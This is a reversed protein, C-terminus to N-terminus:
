QESSYVHVGHVCICACAWACLLVRDVVYYRVPASRTHQKPTLGSCSLFTVKRVTLLRTAWVRRELDAHDQLLEQFSRERLWPGRAVASAQRGALHCCVLSLSFTKAGYNSEYRCKRVLRRAKKTWFWNIRWRTVFALGSECNVDAPVNNVMM